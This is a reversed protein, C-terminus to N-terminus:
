AGANHRPNPAANGQINTANAANNAANGAVNALANAPANAVANAPTNAAANAAHNVPQAVENKAEDRKLWRTSRVRVVVDIALVSRDAEPTPVKQLDATDLVGKKSRILLSTSIPKSVDSL